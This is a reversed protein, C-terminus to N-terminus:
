KRGLVAMPEMFRNLECQLCKNLLEITDPDLNPRSLADIWFQIDKKMNLEM